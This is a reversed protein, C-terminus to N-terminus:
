EARELLDTITSFILMCSLAVSWRSPSAKARKLQSAIQEHFLDPYQASKLLNTRYYRSYVSSFGSCFLGGHSITSNYWTYDIVATEKKRNQATIRQGKVGPLYVSLRLFLWNSYVVDMHISSLARCLWIRVNFWVDLAWSFWSIELSCLWHLSHLGKDLM